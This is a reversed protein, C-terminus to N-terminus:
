KGAVPTASSFKVYRRIVLCGPPSDILSVSSGLERPDSYVTMRTLLPTAKYGVLDKRAILKCATPAFSIREASVSCSGNAEPIAAVSMAANDTSYELGILSFVPSSAPRARDWDFLVDNSRTDRIGLTSLATLAPLCQGVGVKTAAVVLANDMQGAHADPALVSQAFVHGCSVLLAMPYILHKKLQSVNM